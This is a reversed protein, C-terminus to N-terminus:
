QWRAAVCPHTDQLTPLTVSNAAHGKNMDNPRAAQKGEPGCTWISPVAQTDSSSVCFLTM